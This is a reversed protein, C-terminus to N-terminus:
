NDYPRTKRTPIQHDTQIGPIRLITHIENELILEPKHTQYYPWIKIEQTIGLLDSKEGLWALHQVWKTSTQHM